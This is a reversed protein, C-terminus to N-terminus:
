RVWNNPAMEDEVDIIAQEFCQVADQKDKPNRSNQEVQNDRNAQWGQFSNKCHYHM